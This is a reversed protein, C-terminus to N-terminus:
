LIIQPKMYEIGDKIRNIHKDSPSIKTVLFLNDCLQRVSTDPQTTFDQIIEDNQYVKNFTYLVSSHIRGHKKFDEVSYWFKGQDNLPLYCAMDILLNFKDFGLQMGYNMLDRIKMLKIIDYNRIDKHSLIIDIDWTLESNELFKGCVYVNVTINHNKIYRKIHTIWTNFLEINPRDWKKHSTVIGKKIYVNKCDPPKFTM